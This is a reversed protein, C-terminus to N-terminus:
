LHRTKGSLKRSARRKHHRTKGGSKPISLGFLKVGYTIQIIKLQKQFEKYKTEKFQKNEPSNNNRSAYRPIQEAFKLAQHILQDEPLNSYFGVLRKEESSLANLERQVDEKSM